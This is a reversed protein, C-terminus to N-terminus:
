EGGLAAGPEAPTEGGPKVPPEVVAKPSNAAPALVLGLEEARERNAPDQVFALFEKPDNRFENRLGSPLDAFMSQARAVITMAEHLTIPTIDGYQSSYESVHDIVQGRAFKAMITNIDCDQKFQQQARGEGTPSVVPVRKSFRNRIKSNM